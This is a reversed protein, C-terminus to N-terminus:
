KGQVNISPASSYSVTITDGAVLKFDGGTRPTAAGNFSISSVSGGDVVVVEDFGDVNQYTFPSSGVAMLPGKDNPGRAQLSGATGIASPLQGSFRLYGFANWTMTPSSSYTVVVSVGPRVLLRTPSAVPVSVGGVTIASVTGGTVTVEQPDPTGNTYTFPSAGVTIAISTSQISVGCNIWRCQYFEVNWLQALATTSNNDDIFAGSLGAVPAGTAAGTDFTCQSFRVDHLGVTSSTATSPSVGGQVELCQGSVGNGRFYSRRVEVQALEGTHGTVNITDYDVNGLASCDVYCDSVLVDSSCRLLIASMKAANADLSYTASVRRVRIFRTRQPETLLVPSSASFNEAMVLITCFIKGSCVLGEILYDSGGPGTYAPDSAQGPVTVCVGNNLTPTTNSGWNVVLGNGVLWQHSYVIPDALDSGMHILRSDSKSYYGEPDFWAPVAGSIGNAFTLSSGPEFWLLQNSGTFSITASALYAGQICHVRGGTTAIFNLAEQIGTTVTGPTDPGFNAGNNPPRGQALGIASVTVYPAGSILVWEPM